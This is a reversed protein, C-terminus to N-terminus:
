PHFKEKVDEEWQSITMDLLKAPSSAPVAEKALLIYLATAMAYGVEGEDLKQSKVGIFVKEYEVHQNEAVKLVSRAISERVNELREEPTDDATAEDYEGCVEMFLNSCNERNKAIALGIGTWVTKPGIAVKEKHAATVHAGPLIPFRQDNPDRGLLRRGADLIPEIPYVDIGVKQSITKEKVQASVDAKAIDYGWVVGNLGSFSTAVILNIQGIYGGSAEARDFAVTGGLGQEDQGEIRLNKNEERSIKGTHLTVVSVYGLGSSGPNGYGACYSKFPGIAGEVIARKNLTHEKAEAYEASRTRPKEKKDMKPISTTLGGAEAILANKSIPQSM